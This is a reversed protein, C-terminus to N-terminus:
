RACSNPEILGVGTRVCCFPWGIQPPKGSHEFKNRRGEGNWLGICISKVGCSQHFGAAVVAATIAIIGATRRGEGNAEGRRGNGEEAEKVWLGREGGRNATGKFNEQQRKAANRLVQPGDELRKM